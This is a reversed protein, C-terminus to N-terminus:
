TYGAESAADVPIGCLEQPMAELIVMKKWSAHTGCGARTRLKTGCVQFRCWLLRHVTHVAMMGGDHRYRNKTYLQASARMVTSGRLAAAAAIAVM